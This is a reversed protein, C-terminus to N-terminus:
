QPKLNFGVQVMYHGLRCHRAMWAELRPWRTMQVGHSIDALTIEPEITQLMFALSDLDEQVAANRVRFPEGKKKLRGFLEQLGGLPLKCSELLAEKLGPNREAAARVSKLTSLSKVSMELAPTMRERALACAQLALNLQSMIREAPNKYSQHPATRACVLLDLDLRIFKAIHALQVSKYTSRHDPGGDTYELLIPKAATVGDTDQLLTSVLEAAHRIASLPEFMKDKLIVYPVGNYFSDRLNEPICLILQITPVFGNVHFDHDLSPTSNSHSCTLYLVTTIADM